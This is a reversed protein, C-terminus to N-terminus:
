VNSGAIRILVESRETEHSGLHVARGVEIDREERRLTKKLGHRHGECSIAATIPESRYLKEVARIAAFGKGSTRRHCQCLPLLEYGQGDRHASVVSWCQDQPQM